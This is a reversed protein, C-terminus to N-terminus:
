HNEKLQCCSTLAISRLPHDSNLFRISTFLNRAEQYRQYRREKATDPEDESSVLKDLEQLLFRKDERVGKFRRPCRLLPLRLDDKAEGAHHFVHDMRDRM